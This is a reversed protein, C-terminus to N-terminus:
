SRFLAPMGTLAAQENVFALGPHRLDIIVKKRSLLTSWDPLTVFRALGLALDTAPLKIVAGSRAHLNWRYRAIREAMRIRGALDKHTSLIRILQVSKQAAGVGVVLPYHAYQGRTLEGLVVGEKDVLRIVGEHLWRVFPQREKIEVLLTSPLLRMVRASKIRGLRALRKQAKLADFGLLSQGSRIGLAGIVQDDGLNVQGRIHIKKLVVGANLFYNEVPGSLSVRLREFFGGNQLGVGFLVLMLLAFVGAGRQKPRQKLPSPSPTATNKESAGPAEILRAQDFEGSPLTKTEPLTTLSRM